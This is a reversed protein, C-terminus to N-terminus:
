EFTIGGNKFIAYDMATKGDFNMTYIIYNMEDRTCHVKKLIDFNYHGITNGNVPNRLTVNIYSQNIGKYNGNKAMFFLTSGNNDLFKIIEDVPKYNKPFKLNKRLLVDENKITIEKNNRKLKVILNYADLIDM